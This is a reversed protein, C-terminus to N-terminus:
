NHDTPEQTHRHTHTAAIERAVADGAAVTALKCYRFLTTSATLVQVSCMPSFM